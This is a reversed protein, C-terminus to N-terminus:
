EGGIWMASNTSTESLRVSAVFAGASRTMTHLEASMHRGIVAAVNEVSPWSGEASTMVYVKSDMGVLTPVLPDDEGLIAGHDFRDDVFARLARKLEGFDVIVGAHNPAEVTVEVGWSHGHLNTCKGPMNPQRHAAEFTHRVTVSRTM